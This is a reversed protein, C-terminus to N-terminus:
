IFEPFTLSKGFKKTFKAKNALVTKLNSPPFLTISTFNNQVLSMALAKKLQIFFNDDACM